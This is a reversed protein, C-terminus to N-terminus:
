PNEEEEDMKQTVAGGAGSVTSSSESSDAKASVRSGTLRPSGASASELQIYRYNTVVLPYRGNQTLRPNRWMEYQISFNDVEQIGTGELRGNRIIQGTTKIYYIQVSGAQRVGTVDISSVEVKQHIDKRGLEPMAAAIEAQAKKYADRVFMNRVMEPTDLGTPNRELLAKTAMLGAITHLKSADSFDMGPGIVMNGQEDAVVVIQERYLMWVLSIPVIANTAILLVVLSALLRRDRFRSMLERPPRPRDPRPHPVPISELQPAIVPM